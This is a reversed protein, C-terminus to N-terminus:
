RVMGFRRCLRVAGSGSAAEGAQSPPLHRVRLSYPKRSSDHVWFLRLLGPGAFMNAEEMADWGSEALIDRVKLHGNLQAYFIATKGQSDPENPPSDAVLMRVAHEDGCRAASFIDSLM